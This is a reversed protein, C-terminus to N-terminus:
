KKRDFMSFAYVLYNEAQERDNCSDKIISIFEDFKLSSKGNPFSNQDKREDQTQQIIPCNGFNM